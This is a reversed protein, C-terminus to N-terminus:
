VDEAGFRVHRAVVDAALEALPREEAFARARLMLYAQDVSVGAQATVMATAQHVQLQYSAGSDRDDAGPLPRSILPRYAIIAELAGPRSM